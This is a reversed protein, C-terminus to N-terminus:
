GWITEFLLTCKNESNTINGKFINTMLFVSVYLHIIISIQMTWVRVNWQPSM